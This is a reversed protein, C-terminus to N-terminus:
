GVQVDMLLGGVHFRATQYSQTVDLQTESSLLKAEEGVLGNVHEDKQEGTVNKMV